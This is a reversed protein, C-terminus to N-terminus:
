CTRLEDTGEGGGAGRKALTRVELIFAEVIGLRCFHKGWTHMETIADTEYSSTM